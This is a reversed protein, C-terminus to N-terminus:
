IHEGTRGLYVRSKGPWGYLPSPTLDGQCMIAQRLRDICHEMHPQMFGKPLLDWEASHPTQYTSNPYMSKSAEQRLANLCHLSHTIEPEFLYQEYVPVKVLEPLFPAAEKDTMPFFEDTLPSILNAQSSQILITITHTLLPVYKSGLRGM